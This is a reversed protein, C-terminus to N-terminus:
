RWQKEGFHLGSVKVEVPLTTAEGLTNVLSSRSRMSNLQIAQGRLTECRNYFVKQSVPGTLNRSLLSAAPEVLPQAM